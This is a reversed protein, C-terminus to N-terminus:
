WQVSFSQGNQLVLTGRSNSEFTFNGTYYFTEGASNTGEVIIEMTGSVITKTLREVLLNAVRFTAKRTYTLKRELSSVFTGTRTFTENFLCHTSDSTTATLSAHGEFYAIAGDNESVVAESMVEAAEESTMGENSVNDKKCSTFSTAALILLAFTAKTCSLANVITKM